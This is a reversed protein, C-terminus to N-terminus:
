SAGARVGEAILGAILGPVEDAIEHALLGRDGRTEFWREAALGHLHAGVFAAEFPDLTCALAGIMGALVDGAGATALASSGSANIVPVEDPAGVLTHAGKLLTVSRGREVCDALAVFRDAEIERATSGLLVGLEGPHPTLVAAGRSSAFVDVEGAFMGLADADVVSPGQWSALVRRVVARAADDKGFGPGIVVAKARALADDVSEALNDRELRATMVEVVRTDLADAVEPWTAITVLGAGARFAGHACLVAAGLHGASGAFVVVHGAGNKHIGPPRPVLLRSVDCRELLRAAHRSHELAPGPVGLDAVVVTGALRAGAPTLLGLKPAGFTVTLSAQLAAGLSAGTDADLGSPVDVAVIPRHAEHLAHLIAADAGEVPRSLGTGYVADVVFTASTVAVSLGTLDSGLEVPVIGLGCVADFQVRADGQLRSASATLFVLVTAGRTALHRAVVFGDGGNNGPGCVVVARARALPRHPWCRVLADVVGRGANEMLVLGPM